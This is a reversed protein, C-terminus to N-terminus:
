EGKGAAVYHVHEQICRRHTFWYCLGAMLACFSLIMLSQVWPTLNAFTTLLTENCHDTM